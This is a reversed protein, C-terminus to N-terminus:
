LDFEDIFNIITQYKEIFRVGKEMLVIEKGNERIMEKEVLESYYGKFRSTSVNSKRLLPTKLIGGHSDKVITLIDRMIELKGRKAM